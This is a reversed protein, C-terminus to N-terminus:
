ALLLVTTPRINDSGVSATEDNYLPACDNYLKKHGSDESDGDGLDNNECCQRWEFVCAGTETVSRNTESSRFDIRLLSCQQSCNLYTCPVNSVSIKCDADRGFDQVSVPHILYGSDGYGGCSISIVFQGNDLEPRLLRYLMSLFAAFAM